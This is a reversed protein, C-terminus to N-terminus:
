TNSVVQKPLFFCLMGGEFVGGHHCFEFLWRALALEPQASSKSSKTSTTNDETEKQQHLSHHIDLHFLKYLGTNRLACYNM